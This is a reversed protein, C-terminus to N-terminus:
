AYLALFLFAFILAPGLDRQLFFFVLSLAVIVLVPLVYELPPVALARSGRWARGRRARQRLFEWRQSFYGALFLVLLITIAVPQFGFLNVKADSGGPGYGFLILVVPCSSAGGAPTRLETKGAARRVDVFSM